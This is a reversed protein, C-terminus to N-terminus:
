RDNLSKTSDLATGGKLTRHREGRKWMMGILLDCRGVEQNILQQSRGYGAITEEWGMLDVHYGLPNALSENIETAVDRVARREDHLDGPSALFVRIVRRTDAM